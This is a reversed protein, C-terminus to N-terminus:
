KDVRQFNKFHAINVYVNGVVRYSRVLLTIVIKKSITTRRPRYHGIVHGSKSFFIQAFYRFHRIKYICFSL